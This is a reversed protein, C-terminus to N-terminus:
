RLLEDSIEDRKKQRLLINSLTSGERYDATCCFDVIGDSNLTEYVNRNYKSLEDNDNPQHVFVAKGGNNHVFRMALGDSYGDGIYYVDHCDNGNRNNNKLIEQIALIKKDNTMVEGICLITGNENHRIPTGYIDNFYKAIKLNQLFERLGGSVIYNKAFTKKIFDILGPNYKIYQEGEMLEEYSLSEDSNTLLNNFFGFFTELTDGNHIRRYDALAKELYDNRETGNYGFKKVWVWFKPWTETTLTGDFDFINIPEINFKM